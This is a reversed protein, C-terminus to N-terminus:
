FLTKRTVPSAVTMVAAVRGAETGSGHRDYEMAAKQAMHILPQLAPDERGRLFLAVKPTEDPFNAILLAMAQKAEQDKGMILRQMALKLLVEPFPQSRALEDLFSIRAEAMDNSADIYNSLIFKASDNWWPILMVKQLYAVRRQNEKFSIDPHSYRVLNQFIWVGSVMYILMLSGAAVGVWRLLGTELRAHILPCPARACVTVLMALFPLYWLPFEFLSHGLIMFAIAILFLHEPAQQEKFFYPLLCFFLGAMVILTGILGTEALLQFILNHCHTFLWNEPAKPLGGTLELWQAQYAYGGVGYGTWPHDQFMSWAKSWEIRRRLGFGDGLMREAGSSTGFYWGLAHMERVLLGNFLQWMALALLAFALMAVMKAVREDLRARRYWFWGLVAMVLGYALVLRSGSWTMLMTLLLMSVASLVRPLRGMGHLYCCAMISWGLYEGYHNRQALNGIPVSPNLPDYIIFGHLYPAGEGLQILGIVCQLLGGGLLAWALASLASDQRLWHGVCLSLLFMMALVSGWQIVATYNGRWAGSIVVWLLFILLFISSRPIALREMRLRFFWCAAMGIGLVVLAHTWWDQLPSYRAYNLFPAVFLLIWFLSIPLKKM